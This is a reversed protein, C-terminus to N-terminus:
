GHDWGPKKKLSYILELAQKPTLDDPNTEKLQDLLSAPKQFLDTGTQNNALYDGSDRDSMHLRANAIVPKPIGALRAVQLGYSQSAPGQKVTHMFIIEDGHEVADLHVNAANDIYDPLSTLEFYHTAFLCLCRINKALYEACARALALGDLTGTGRGIEDVLVLSDSTANNLINATETMEVMFTSRGGAVDDAAGIRTFIRDVPGIIAREAPVYCGTHALLVILANQRMYTSKGGMNPGTIILLINGNGLELDNAIFPANQIQEVVLHRGGQISIGPVDTLEPSNLNLTVAREAFCVLIDLEAIAAATNQLAPLFKGLKELLQDYLFKERALSKERASLIKDEFSKLEPTIFRETSKLTQRRLYTAPVRDSHLRSIEIYYGHVRNYGVKLGPIGSRQQESRELKILFEGANESLERLQDLDEDYGKAIVGGDRITHPPSEVLASVLLDYTFSFDNINAHIDQLLPSDFNQLTSKLTPIIGLTNRLQVLDGPKASKLAIRALIREIDCIARLSDHFEIFNRNTLLSDVAALRLRIIERNRVPRHLWRRLMRGGMATSTTDIVRLLCHDNNGTLGTDIELNKRSIGDLIIIEDRSEVRLACIHPLSVCQTERIYHLLCGTASIAVHLHECGFGALSAVNLQKRLNSEASDFEFQWDPRLTVTFRHELDKKLVSEESILLEAPKFRQLEDMLAGVQDLEMNILRGSSIDLASLGYKGGKSHVAVLLNDTRDDLMGDDTVTGPTLIRVVKREVPGKSTLPDGIQECIVVSEGMRILRSLYNEAAHYPVGAMPVPHGASQGRSTLAIDLLRSVKRADDFFLEYFDGMRFFLLKDPYRSKFGLYQKIVPTHESLQDTKTSM